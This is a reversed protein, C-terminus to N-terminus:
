GFMPYYPAAASPLPICQREVTTDPTAIATIIMAMLTTTLVRLKTDEMAVQDEEAVQLTGCESRSGIFGIM